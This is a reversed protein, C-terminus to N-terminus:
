KQRASVRRTGSRSRILVRNLDGAVRNWDGALAKADEELSGLKPPSPLAIGSRFDQSGSGSIDFISGAGRLFARWPSLARIPSIKLYKM